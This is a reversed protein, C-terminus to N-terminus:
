QFENRWRSVFRKKTEDSLKQDTKFIDRVSAGNSFFKWNWRNAVTDMEMQVAVAQM